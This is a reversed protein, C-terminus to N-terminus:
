LSWYEWEREGGHERGHERGRVVVGESMQVAHREDAACSVCAGDGPVRAGRTESM